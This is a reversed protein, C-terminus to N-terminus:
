GIGHEKKYSRACHVCCFSMRKGRIAERHGGEYVKCGCNACVALSPGIAVSISDSFRKFLRESLRKGEGTLEFVKRQKAGASKVTHRLLGGEELRKLLPYVLSPSVPRGTRKRFKSIISYGHNPGEYLITLVHFRSFDSVFEDIETSSMAM